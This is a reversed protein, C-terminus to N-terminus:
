REIGTSLKMCTEGGETRRGRRGERGRKTVLEALGDTNLVVCTEGVEAQTGRQKGGGGGRGREREGQLLLETM